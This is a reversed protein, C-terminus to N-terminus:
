VALGRAIYGFLVFVLGFVCGVAVAVPIWILILYFWILLGKGFGIPENTDPCKIMQGYIISHALLHVVFSLLLNWLFGPIDFPVRIVFGIVAAIIEIKYATWYPISFKVAWGTVIKLFLASLFSVIPIVIAAIVIRMYLPMKEDWSWETPRRGPRAKPPRLPKPAAPGSISCNPLAQKLDTLGAKSIRTGSVNLKELRTLGKLHELGTDSVQTNHLYFTNLSTLGKLHALGEDSILTHHICLYRLGTLGKLHAMGEDTVKTRHVCLREITALNKVHALGADTIQTGALFLTKLSTLGALHALGEDGVQTNELRLTELSTLAKLHALGVDSIQANPLSSGEIMDAVARELASGRLNVYRVIGQRDLLFTSPISHIDFRVAIENDWGKGDFYQPWPVDNKQIFNELRSRDKDLSIGIIEFGDDHYNGYTNKVNPLEGICPGCWTAWFDVLVVKDKYRSIDIQEGKLSTFKLEGLPKGLRPHSQARRQRRSINLSRLLTLGKVHALDADGFRPNDLVLSQLDSPGLAALPSFDGSYDSHVKLQLEKEAPVTVKGRAEGLVTWDETEASTWDRVSLVGMSVDTTFGITREGPSVKPEASQAKEVQGGISVLILIILWVNKWAKTEMVRSWTLQSFCANVTDM